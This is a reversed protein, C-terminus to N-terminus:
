REQRETDFTKMFAFFNTAFPALGTENILPEMLKRKEKGNGKKEGLGELIYIIYRRKLYMHGTKYQPSSAHSM